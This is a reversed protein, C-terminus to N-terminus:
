KEVEEQDRPRVSNTAVAHRRKASKRASAGTSLDTMVAVAAAIGAAGLGLPGAASSPGALYLGPVQTRPGPRFSLMQDPALAGGDLDGGTLGLAAEIDPPVIAAAAAIRPLKLPALRELARNM